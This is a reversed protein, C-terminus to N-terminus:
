KHPSSWMRRQMEFSGIVASQKEDGLKAAFTHYCAFPDVGELVRVLSGRSDDISIQGDKSMVGMALVRLNRVAYTTKLFTGNGALIVAGLIEGLFTDQLLLGFFFLKCTSVHAFNQM